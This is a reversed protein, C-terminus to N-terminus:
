RKLHIYRVVFPTIAGVLAGWFFSDLGTGFLMDIPIMLFVAGIMAGGIFVMGGSESLEFLPKKTPKVPRLREQEADEQARRAHGPNAREYAKILREYTPIVDGESQVYAGFMYSLLSIHNHLEKSVLSQLGFRDGIDQAAKTQMTNLEALAKIATRYNDYNKIAGNDANM